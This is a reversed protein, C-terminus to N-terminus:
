NNQSRFIVYKRDRGSLCGEALLCLGMDCATAAKLSLLVDSNPEITHSDPKGWAIGHPMCCVICTRRAAFQCQSKQEGMKEGVPIKLIPRM